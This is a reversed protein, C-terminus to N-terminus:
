PPYWLRPEVVSFDWCKESDLVVIQGVISGDSMNKEFVVKDSSTFCPCDQFLGWYEKLCADLREVISGRNDWSTPVATFLGSLRSDPYDFIHINILYFHKCFTYLLSLIKITFDVCGTHIQLYFSGTWTNESAMSHKLSKAGALQHKSNAIPQRETSSQSINRKGSFFRVQFWHGV